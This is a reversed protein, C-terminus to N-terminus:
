IDKHVTGKLGHLVDDPFIGSSYTYNYEYSDFWFIGHEPYFVISDIRVSKICLMFNIIM